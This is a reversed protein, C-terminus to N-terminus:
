LGKWFLGDERVMYFNIMQKLYAKYSDSINVSFFLHIKLVTQELSYAMYTLHHLDQDRDTFWELRRLLLNGKDM